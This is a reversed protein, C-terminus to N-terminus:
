PRLAAAAVRLDSLWAAYQRERDDEDRARLISSPHVTPLAQVGLPSDLVKGRDRLVKVGTGFVSETAVAGLLVLLKPSVAAVEAALWPHCALLESRSPKKHLRRPGREEWKFHKVANTVYVKSRDIGVEGLAQDLLHGSPGVFPAGELDEHDGPQEGVLM